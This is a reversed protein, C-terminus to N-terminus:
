LEVLRGAQHRRHDQAACLQHSRGQPRQGGRRGIPLERRGATIQGIWHGVHDDGDIACVFGGGRPARHIAPLAFLHPAPAITVDRGAREVPAREDTERYVAGTLKVTGGEFQTWGRRACPSYTTPYRFSNAPM